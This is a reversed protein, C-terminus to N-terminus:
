FQQCTDSGVIVAASLHLTQGLTSVLLQAQQCYCSDVVTVILLSQQCTRGGIIAGALLWFQRCTHSGVIVAASLRLTQHTWIGVVANALVQLISVLALDSSYSHWCNCIRDWNLRTARMTAPMSPRVLSSAIDRNCSALGM